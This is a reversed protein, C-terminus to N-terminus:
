YIPPYIKLDFTKHDTKTAMSDFNDNWLRYGKLLKIYKLGHPSKIRRYHFVIKRATKSFRVAGAVWQRQGRKHGFKYGTLHDSEGM